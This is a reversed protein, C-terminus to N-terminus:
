EKIKLENKLKKILFELNIMRVNLVIVEVLRNLFIKHILILKKM